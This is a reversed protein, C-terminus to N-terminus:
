EGCSNTALIFMQIRDNNMDTVFMNGYSDFALSWPNSLQDTASGSVGSCGVLCQFEKSSSRVIRHRDSDVIFINGDADLVISRPRYLTFSVAAAYGAVTTGNLDGHPFRQIRNNGADAVYLDFNMDVFIGCSENLMNSASGPCGTGAATMLMNTSDHLSMKVVRHGNDISCYHTNNVDIFLDICGRNVYM